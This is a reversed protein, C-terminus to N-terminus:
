HSHPIACGDLYVQLSDTDPIVDINLTTSAEFEAIDNAVLAIFLTSLETALQEQAHNKNKLNAVASYNLRKVAQQLALMSFDQIRIEFDAFIESGQTQKIREIDDANAYLKFLGVAGQQDNKCAGGEMTRVLQLLKGDKLISLDPTGLLDKQLM